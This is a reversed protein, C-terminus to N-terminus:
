QRYLKLEFVEYPIAAWEAFEGIKGWRFKRKMNMMPVQIQGNPSNFIGPQAPNFKYIWNSKYYVASTLAIKTTPALNIEKLKLGNKTKQNAWKMITRSAAEPNKFDVNM